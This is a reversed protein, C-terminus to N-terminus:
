DGTLWDWAESALHGVGSVAVNGLGIATGAVGPWGLGAATEATNKVGDWAEGAAGAIFSGAGALGESLGVDGHVFDSIGAEAQGLKADAWNVADVGAVRGGFFGRLGESYDVAEPSYKSGNAAMEQNVDTVLEADDAHTHQIGQWSFYGNAGLDRGYADDHKEAAADLGDIPPAPANDGPGGYNGYSVFRAAIDLPSDGKQWDNRDDFFPHHGDYPTSENGL